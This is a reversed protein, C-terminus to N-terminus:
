HNLGENIRNIIVKVAPFNNRVFEVSNDNSDNDAVFITADSSYKVLTPLFKALWHKGNWNLIVVAIKIKQAEM